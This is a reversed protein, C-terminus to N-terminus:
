IYPPRMLDIVGNGMTDTILYSRKRKAMMDGQAINMALFQVSSYSMYLWGDFLWNGSERYVAFWQPAGQGFVAHRVAPHSFLNNFM